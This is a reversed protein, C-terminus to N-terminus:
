WVGTTEFGRAELWVNLSMLADKNSSWVEFGDFDEKVGMDPLAQLGSMAVKGDRFARLLNPLNKFEVAGYLVRLRYEAKAVRGVWRRAVSRAMVVRKESDNAKPM